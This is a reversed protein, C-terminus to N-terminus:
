RARYLGYVATARVYEMDKVVNAFLTDMNEGPMATLGTFEITFDGSFNHSKIIRFCDQVKELQDELCVREGAPNQVQSHMLAIRDGFLDFKEQLASPEGFPHM